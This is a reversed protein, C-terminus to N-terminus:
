ATINGVTAAQLLWLIIKAPFVSKASVIVDPIFHAINSKLQLIFCLVCSCSTGAASTLVSTTATTAATALPSVRMVPKQLSATGGATPLQVAAAAATPCVPGNM